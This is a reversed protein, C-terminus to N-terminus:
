EEGLMGTRRAADVIKLARQIGTITMRETIQDEKRGAVLERFQERHYEMRGPEAEEIQRTHELLASRRIVHFQKLHLTMQM